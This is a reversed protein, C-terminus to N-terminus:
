LIHDALFSPNMQSMFTLKRAVAIADSNAIRTPPFLIREKERLEEATVDEEQQKVLLKKNKDRKAREHFLFLIGTEEASPKHVLELLERFSDYDSKSLLRALRSFHWTIDSVRWLKSYSLEPAIKTARRGFGSRFAATLSESPSHM